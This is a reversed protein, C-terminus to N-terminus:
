LDPGWSDQTFQALDATTDADLAIGRENGWLARQDTALALVGAADLASDIGESGAIEILYEAAKLSRNMDGPVCPALAAQLAGTEPHRGLSLISTVCAEDQAPDPQFVGIWYRTGAADTFPASDAELDFGDAAVGIERLAQSVDLQPAEVEANDLSRVADYAAYEADGMSRWEPASQGHEVAKDQAFTMLQFPLLQREHIDAQLDAYLDAASDLSDFTAIELYSGGLDGTLANAYVDVAGIAYREEAEDPGGHALAIITGDHWHWGDDPDFTPAPDPVAASNGARVPQFPDDQRVYAFAEEAFTSDFYPDDPLDPPYGGDTM